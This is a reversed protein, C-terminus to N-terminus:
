GGCFSLSQQQTMQGMTDGFGQLSMSTCTICLSSLPTVGGYVCVIVFVYERVYMYERVSEYICVHDYVYVCVIMFVYERVCMSMRVCVHDCVCVCVHDHVYKRVCVYESECICVIVFAYQRVCTYECEFMWECASM